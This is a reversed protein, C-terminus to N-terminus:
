LAEAKDRGNALESFFEGMLTATEADPICWLTSVVAKAGALQFAQRLGAVGEGNHVQGVGTECASLVVLETGRMDCGVIEMGTVIGDDVAMGDSQENCGALLMGCRLLPNGLPHDDGVFPAPTYFGHTSLVLVRPSCLTKLVDELAEEGTYVTPPEHALRALSPTILRAEEATGPLRNAKGAGDDLPPLAISEM